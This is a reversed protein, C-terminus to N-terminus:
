GVEGPKQQAATAACEPGSSASRPALDAFANGSRQLANRTWLNSVLPTCFVHVNEEDVPRRVMLAIQLEVEEVSEVGFRM